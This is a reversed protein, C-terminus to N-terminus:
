SVFWGVLLSNEESFEWFSMLGVFLVLWNGARTLVLLSVEGRPVSVLYFIDSCFNLM